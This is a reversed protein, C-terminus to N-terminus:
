RRRLGYRIQMEDFDERSKGDVLGDVGIGNGWSMCARVRKGKTTQANKKQAHSIRPYRIGLCAREQRLSAQIKRSVLWIGAGEFRMPKLGDLKWKEIGTGRKLFAARRIVGCVM